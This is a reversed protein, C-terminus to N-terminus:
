KKVTTKKVTKKVTGTTTTKKPEETEAMAEAYLEEEEDSLFWETLKANIDLAVTTSETKVSNYASKAVSFGTENHIDSHIRNAVESHECALDSVKNLGSAVALATGLAFSTGTTTLALINKTTVTAFSTTDNLGKTTYNTM